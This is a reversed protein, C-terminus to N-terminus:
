LTSSLHSITARTVSRAARARTTTTGTRTTPGTRTGIRVSGVVAIASGASRSRPGEQRGRPHFRQPGLDPADPHRRPTPSRAGRLAPRLPPVHNLVHVPRVVLLHRPLDPLAVRGDGLFDDLLYCRLRLRLRGFRSCSRLSLASLWTKTFAPTPPKARRHAAVEPLRKAHAPGAEHRPAGRREKRKSPRQPLPPPPRLPSAVPSISGSSCVTIVPRSQASTAGNAHRSSELPALSKTAMESSHTAGDM